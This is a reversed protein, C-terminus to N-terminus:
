TQPEPDRPEIEGRRIPVSPPADIGIRATEGGVRLVHVTVTHKGVGLVITEAKKRTLVLM